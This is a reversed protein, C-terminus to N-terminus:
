SGEKNKKSLDWSFRPLKAKREAEILRKEEKKIAEMEALEKEGIREKIFDNLALKIIKSYDIPTDHEYFLHAAYRMCDQRTYNETNIITIPNVIKNVKEDDIFIFDPHMGM